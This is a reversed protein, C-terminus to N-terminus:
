KRCVDQYRSEFSTQIWKGGETSVAWTKNRMWLQECQIELRPPLAPQVLGLHISFSPGAPSSCVRILDVASWEPHLWEPRSSISFTMETTGPLSFLFSYLRNKYRKRRKPSMYIYIYIIVGGGGEKSIGGEGTWWSPPGWVGRIGWCRHLSRGVLWM